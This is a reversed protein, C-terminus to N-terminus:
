DEHSEDELYIDLLGAPLTVFLQRNRADYRQVVEDNYPILIEQQQYEMGLILQPTQDYWCSIEGLTGLNQDVVVAGLLDHYYFADQGLTPLQDIPLFLGQGVLTRAHDLDEVEEFKILLKTGQPNLSQIFFPILNGTEPRGLFVSEMKYYHKPVDVDLQAQVLGKLGHTDQIYGLQYYADIEM